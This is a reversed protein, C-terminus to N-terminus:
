KGEAETFDRASQWAAGACFVVPFWMTAHEHAAYGCVAALFVAALFQLQFILKM